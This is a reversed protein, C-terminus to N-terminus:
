ETHCNAALHFPPRRAHRSSHPPVLGFHQDLAGTKQRWVDDGTLNIQRWGLPSLYQLVGDNSLKGTECFAQAAWSCAPLSIRSTLTKLIASSTRGSMAAHATLKRTNKGTLGAHKQGYPLRGYKKHDKIRAQCERRFVPINSM